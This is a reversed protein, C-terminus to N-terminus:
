VIQALTRKRLAFPEAELPCQGYFDAFQGTLSGWSEIDAIARYLGTLTAEDRGWVNFHKRGPILYFQRPLAAEDMADVYMMNWNFSAKAQTPFPIPYSVWNDKNAKSWDTQGGSALEGARAGFAVKPWFDNYDEVNGGAFSAVDLPEDAKGGYTFAVAEGNTQLVQTFLACASGCTGDSLFAIETWYSHDYDPAISVMRDIVARCESYIGKKSYSNRGSGLGYEIYGLDYPSFVSGTDPHIQETPDFPWFWDAPLLSDKISFEDPIFSRSRVYEVIAAAQATSSEESKEIEDSKANIRGIADELTVRGLADPSLKMGEYVLAILSRIQEFISAKKAIIEEPSTRALYRDVTGTYGRKFSEIWTTWNETIRKRLPACIKSRDMMTYWLLANASAVFGGDNGSVDFLLRTIGKSQAIRQIEVFDPFYMYETDGVFRPSPRMSKLKVVILKNDLVEHTMAEVKRLVKASDALETLSAKRSMLEVPPWLKERVLEDIDRYRLADEYAWIPETDDRPDDCASTLESHVADAAEVAELSTRADRPGARVFAHFASNKNMFLELRDKSRISQGGPKHDMFVAVLNATVTAGERLKIELQYVMPLPQNALSFEILDAHFIFGNLRQESQQYKRGLSGDNDGVLSELFKLPDDGNISVIVQGNLSDDAPLSGFLEAHAHALEGLGTNQDTSCRLTIVQDDGEMRSGFNVPFYAKFMHLPAEYYTHADHLQNFLRVLEMHLRVAPTKQKMFARMNTPDTPIQNVFFKLEDKLFQVLDVQVKHVRYWCANAEFWDETSKVMETFSYTETVGYYLNHLTWLVKGYSIELEWLCDLLTDTTMFFSDSKLARRRRVPRAGEFRCPDKTSPDHSPEEAVAGGVTSSMVHPQHIAANIPRMLEETAGSKAPGETTEILDPDSTTSLVMGVCLLVCLLHGM